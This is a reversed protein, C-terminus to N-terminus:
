FVGITTQLIDNRKKTMIDILDDGKLKFWDEKTAGVLNNTIVQMGMMRSEVVIRSLTEPSKPFFVLTNFKGLNRLFKEPASPEILDFKIGKYECYKIAEGTNKHPISYSVVAHCDQKEAAAMEELIDLHAVSWLNGSMNVLNDIQLNKNIINLHFSSQCFVAKAREYFERNIIKDQPAVLNPYDM